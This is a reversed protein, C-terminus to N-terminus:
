GERDVSPLTTSVWKMKRLFGEFTEVVNGDTCEWTTPEVFQQEQYTFRMTREDPNREVRLVDHGWEIESHQAVLLAHMSTTAFLLHAYPQSAIHEVLRRMPGFFENREELDRYFGLTVDWPKTPVLM